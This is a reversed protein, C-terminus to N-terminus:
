VSSSIRMGTVRHIMPHGTWFDQKLLFESYNAIDDLGTLTLLVESVLWIMIEHLLHRHQSLHRM